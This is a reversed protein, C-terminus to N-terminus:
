RKESARRAEAIAEARSMGEALAATCKTLFHAVSSGYLHISCGQWSIEIGPQDHHNVVAVVDVLPDRM